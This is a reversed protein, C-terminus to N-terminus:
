RSIPSALFVHWSTLRAASSFLRETASVSSMMSRLLALIGLLVRILVAAGGFGEHDGALQERGLTRANGCRAWPDRGRSYPLSPGDRVLLEDSPAGPAWRRRAPGLRLTARPPHSMTGMWSLSGLTPPRMIGQRSTLLGQARGRRLLAGATDFVALGPVKFVQRTSSLREEVWNGADPPARVSCHQGARSVRFGSRTWNAPRRTSPVAALVSSDSPYSNKRLVFRPTSGVSPTSGLVQQKRFLQEVASSHRRRSLIASARSGSHQRARSGRM